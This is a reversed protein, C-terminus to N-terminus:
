NTELYYVMDATPNVKREAEGQKPSKPIKFILVDKLEAESDRHHRGLWCEICPTEVPDWHVVSKCSWWPGELNSGPVTSLSAPMVIRNESLFWMSSEQHLSSPFFIGPQQSFHPWHLVKRGSVLAFYFYVNGISWYSHQPPEEEGDESFGPICAWGCLFLSKDVPVDNGARARGGPCRHIGTVLLGLSLFQDGHNRM